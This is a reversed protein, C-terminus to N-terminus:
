MFRYIKDKELDDQIYFENNTKIKRYGKEPHEPHLPALAELFPPNKIKIKKPNEIFFYRDSIPDLIKKNKTELEDWTMTSKAKSIGTSLVFDYIAQPLFGRRRLAVITTLRPDDWGTLKKKQILERIKRGSTEVGKLNLRGFEFTKTENLKLLKQIYRQLEARLEFEKSRLRNTIKFHGDMVANQFDYTPWLSYKKNTRPHSKAIFRCMTPDRMTTNQHKM